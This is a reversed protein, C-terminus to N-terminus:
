TLEIARVKFAAAVVHIKLKQHAKVAQAPGHTDRKGDVASVARWVVVLLHATSRSARMHSTHCGIYACASPRLLLSPLKQFQRPIHSEPANTNRWGIDM